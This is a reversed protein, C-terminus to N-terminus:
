QVKHGNAKAAAALRKAVDEGSDNPDVTTYALTESHPVGNQQIVLTYKGDTTNAGQDIRFGM